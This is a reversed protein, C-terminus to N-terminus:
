IFLVVFMDPGVQVRSSNRLEYMVLVMAGDSEVSHEM